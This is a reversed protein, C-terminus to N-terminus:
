RAESFRPAMDSHWDHCRGCYGESVDRPHYSTLSCRPCTISPRAKSREAADLDAILQKALSAITFLRDLPYWPGDLLERLKQRDDSTM